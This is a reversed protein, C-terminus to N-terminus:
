PLFAMILFLALSERTGQALFGKSFLLRMVTSRRTLVAQKTFLFIFIYKENNLDVSRLSNTVKSIRRPLTFCHIREGYREALTSFGVGEGGAPLVSFPFNASLVNANASFMYM